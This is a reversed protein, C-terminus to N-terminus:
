QAFWDLIRRWYPLLIPFLFGLLTVVATFWLPTAQSFLRPQEDPFDVYIEPPLDNIEDRRNRLEVEMVQRGERTLDSTIAIRLLEETSLSAYREKLDSYSPQM